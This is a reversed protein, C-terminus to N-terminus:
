KKITEKIKPKFIYIKPTFIKPVQIKPMKIEFGLNEKVAVNKEEIKPFETEEEIPLENVQIEDIAGKSEHNITSQLFKSLKQDKEYLLGKYIKLHNQTILLNKFDESTFIWGTKTDYLMGTIELNPFFNTIKNLENVQEIVNRIENDFPKFFNQLELLIESYNRSLKKLFDNPLKERLEKLNIKTMGCDLHGLIIIFKVKFKIISLLISRMVDSTYLNGANRLVFVDGPNLHFIRYIDIRPDM